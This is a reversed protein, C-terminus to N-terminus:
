GEVWVVAIFSEEDRSRNNITNNTNIHARKSARSVDQASVWARCGRRRRM